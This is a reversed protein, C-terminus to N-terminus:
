SELRWGDGHFSSLFCEQIDAEVRCGGGRPAFGAMLNPPILDRDGRLLCFNRPGLRCPLHALRKLEFFAVTDEPNPIINEVQHSGACGAKDFSQTPLLLVQQNRARPQLNPAAA